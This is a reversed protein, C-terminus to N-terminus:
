EDIDGPLWAEVATGGSDSAGVSLRGGVEEAREVMADLGVGRRAAPSIGSGDDLVRLALGGNYDIEVCVQTAQAHRAANTAAEMVIRFAAVEVAPALPPVEAICVSMRPGFRELPKLGETLAGALGLENLAAPRLGDCIRRIETVAEQVQDALMRVTSSDTGPRQELQRLGLGIAALSPGLGDHLERRLRV